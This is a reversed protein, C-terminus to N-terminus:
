LGHKSLFEDVLGTFQDPREAFPLHGVDPVIKLTLGAGYTDRAVEAGEPPLVEDKDGWVILTPASIGGARRRFDVVLVERAMKLLTGIWLDYDERERMADYQRYVDKLFNSEKNYVFTSVRDYLRTTMADILKKKPLLAKQLSLLSAVLLNRGSFGAPAALVLASVADPIMLATEQAVAGGMSSGVLVAGDLGLTEIMEAVADAMFSISYAVDARKESLYYGPYDLGIVRRKKALAPYIPSFAALNVSFGHLFVIPTGKGEDIYACEHGALTVRKVPYPYLAELSM